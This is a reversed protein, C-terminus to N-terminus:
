KLQAEAGWAWLQRIITTVGRTNLETHMKGSVEAWKVNNVM